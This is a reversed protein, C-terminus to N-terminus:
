KINKKILGIWKKGKKFIKWEDNFSKSNVFDYFFTNDDVDDMVIFCNNSFYNSLSDFTKKRAFYSKDSDYHFLNIETIIKKIDSVNKSDGKTYLKWRKKIKEPVVVGILSIPDPLRFYPFDSSYLIGFDNKNLAELISASSFGAAVGTEFVIKPKLYRTLFYILEIQASGGLDFKIDKLKLSAYENIKKTEKETEQWLNRDLDSCFKEISTTNKDLWSKLEQISISNKKDFFRLYSKKLMVFFNNISLASFFINKLKM